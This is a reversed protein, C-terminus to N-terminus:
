RYPVEISLCGAKGPPLTWLRAEAVDILRDLEALEAPFNESGYPEHRRGYVYETNLPRWRQFFLRNKELVALRLDEHMQADEITIESEHPM